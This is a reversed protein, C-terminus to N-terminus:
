GALPRVEEEIQRGVQMKKVELDYRSQLNVFFEPEVGFFRGLRLALEDSIGRGGRLVAYVKQENTHLGQALKHGSMGLPELFEMALVEGPHLPAFERSKEVSDM